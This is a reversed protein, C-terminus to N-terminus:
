IESVNLRQNNCKQENCLENKNVYRQINREPFMNVANGSEKPTSIVLIPNAIDTATLKGITINGQRVDIFEIKKALFTHFIM